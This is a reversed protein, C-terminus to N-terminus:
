EIKAGLEVLARGDVGLRRAVDANVTIRAGGYLDIEDQPDGGLRGDLFRNALDAAARGAARPSFDVAM